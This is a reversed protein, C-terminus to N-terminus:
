VIVSHKLVDFCCWAYIVRVFIDWICLGVYYVSYIGARHFRHLSRVLQKIHGFFNKRIHTCACSIGVGSNPSTLPIYAAEHKPPWNLDTGSFSSCLRCRQARRRSYCGRGESRALLGSPPPVISCLCVLVKNKRCIHFSVICATWNLRNVFM